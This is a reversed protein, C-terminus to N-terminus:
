LARFAPTLALKAFDELKTDTTAEANREYTMLGKNFGEYLECYLDAFHEPMGNSIMGQRMDTLSFEVYPLSSLDFSKALIEAVEGGSVDRPGLLYQVNKGPFNLSKLRLAAYHGIDGAAIMPWPAGASTAAGYIGLKKIMGISGFLNQMFFGARLHLTNLDPIGDLQKELYYLGNIPGVGAAHDAGVSSLSVVHRTGANSIADAFNDTAEDQYKRFDAAAFNPPIMVYAAEVGDFARKMDDANTVDGVLIEAGLKALKELKDASRGVARVTQGSKLLEEAVIHGTNGTAGIVVYNM